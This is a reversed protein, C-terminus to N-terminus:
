PTEAEAPVHDQHAHAIQTAPGVRVEDGLV